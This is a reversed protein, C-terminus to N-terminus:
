GMYGFAEAAIEGITVLGMSMEDEMEEGDDKYFEGISNDLKDWKEAKSKWKEIKAFDIGPADNQILIDDIEQVAFKRIAEVISIRLSGNIKGTTAIHQLNGDIIRIEDVIEDISQMKKKM